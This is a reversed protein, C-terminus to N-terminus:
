QRVPSLAKLESLGRVSITAWDQVQDRFDGRNSVQTRWARM